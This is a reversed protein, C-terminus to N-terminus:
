QLRKASRQERVRWSIPRGRQLQPIIELNNVEFFSHFIPHSRGDRLLARGPARAEHEGRVRGAPSGFDGTAQLRRRHRLARTSTTACRSRERDTMAWWSVEIIYAVPYKFLEPDDLTLTNFRRTTRTSSASRM